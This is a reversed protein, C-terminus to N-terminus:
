YEIYYTGVNEVLPLGFQHDSYKLLTDIPKIGEYHVTKGEVRPKQLVLKVLQRREEVESSIFLEYAKKALELIYKSTIYYNDEAEQLIGIDDRVSDMHNITRYESNSIGTDNHKMHVLANLQRENLKFKSFQKLWSQDDDKIFASSYLTVMFWDHCHIFTPEALGAERLSSKITQIGRGRQEAINRDRLYNMLLPNRTEPHASEILYLPILSRGPNAFEIRDAYIDIQIRGKFTTFDRHVIANALTKRIAVQPIALYNLRKGETEIRSRIPLKSYIFKLAGEFQDVANGSFERDDLSVESIESPNVKSSGAHQTVAINVTPATLKTLGTSNSFALLGFMTIRREPDLARLKILIEEISLSGYVNGRLKKVTNLHETISKNDYYENFNGSFVMLEAGGQAAVAFRRIWEGDLDANVPGIRVKGGKPCGRSNSFFPRLSSPAPQIFCNIVNDPTVHIEPYIKHNFMGTCQSLLNSQLKDHHKPMIGLVNGTQDVGLNLRVVTLTVLHQSRNGYILLFVIV